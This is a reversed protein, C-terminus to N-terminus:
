WQTNYSMLNDSAAYTGKVKDTLIHEPSEVVARISYFRSKKM